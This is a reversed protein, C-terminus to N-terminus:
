YGARAVPPRETCDRVPFICQEGLHLPGGDPATYNIQSVVANTLVINVNCLRDNQFLSALGNVGPSFLGGEVWVSGQAYTWIQTSGVVLKHAAEGLCARVHKAKLGIMKSQAIQDVEQAAAAGVLLALAAAGAALWIRHLQAEAGGVQRRVM